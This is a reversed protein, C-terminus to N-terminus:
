YCDFKTFVMLRARRLPSFFLLGFTVQFEHMATLLVILFGVRYFLSAALSMKKSESVVPTSKSMM